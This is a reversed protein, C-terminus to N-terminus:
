KWEVRDWGADRGDRSADGLREVVPDFRQRDPVGTAFGVAMGVANLTWDCAIYLASGFHRRRYWLFAFAILGGGAWAALMSVAAGAAVALLAGVGALLYLAVILPRNMRRLHHRLSGDRLAARLVQGYGAFMSRRIRRAYGSWTDKPITHHTFMLDPMEDVRYGLREIRARLEAEEDSALYPHFGGAAALAASRYLATGGLGPTDPVHSEFDEGVAEYIERRQGYAVGTQPHDGLHRVAKELWEAEIISDGDVFLVYPANVLRAGVARGAAATRTACRYRFVQAGFRAAIAATDDESNSDVVVVQTGEFPRAAAQVARLCAAVHAAENRTIIVVALQATGAGTKDQVAAGGYLSL